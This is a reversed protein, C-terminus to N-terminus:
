FGSFFEEFSFNRGLFSRNLKCKLVFGYLVSTKGNRLM